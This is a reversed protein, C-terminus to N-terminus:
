EALIMIRGDDESKLISLRYGFEKLFTTCCFASNISHYEVIIKPKHQEITRRAGELVFQEAGEVDIKLLDPVSVTNKSVLNDITDEEVKTQKFSIENVYVDRQWLTTSNTIFGGTSTGGELDDTCLFDIQGTQNSLALNLLTINETESENIKKIEEFREINIKNPEFAFVKGSSGVQKSFIFSHYGIHAGIDFVVKSNLDLTKIKAFLEKDYTGDIMQKQWTGHPYLKLKFGKLDGDTITVIESKNNLTFVDAKKSIKKYLRTKKLHRLFIPPIFDAVSRYIQGKELM